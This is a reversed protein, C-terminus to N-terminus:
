NSENLYFYNFNMSKKDTSNPLTRILVAESFDEQLYPAIQAAQVVFDGNDLQVPDVTILTARYFFEKLVDNVAYVDQTIHGCCETHTGHGHPNFFVDRFNVSGGEKISGIFGNARVPEMRPPDVYWARVNETSAQLSMSLDIAESTEIFESKSLYLRM